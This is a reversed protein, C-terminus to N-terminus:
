LINIALIGAFAVLTGLISRRTPKEGFFLMANVTTIILSGGRIVPYLIQPSMGYKGTALTQFYNVAFICVAMVAILPLAKAATRFLQNPAPASAPPTKKWFRWVCYIGFCVLLILASFVFTYFQYISVPYFVGRARVGNETYYQRYLQQSFGTLGDGATALIVLAIGALGTKEVTNNQYGSLIVASLIVLGYGLMKQWAIPEAFLWASLAAPIMSGAAMTVEVTILPCKQVALMWGILLAANSAGAFLCIAAMDREVHFAHQASEAYVVTLGILICMLMRVLNFLFSDSPQRVLTSTKKGSYAKGATFVLALAVAGYAM